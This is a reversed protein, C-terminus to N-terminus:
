LLAQPRARRLIERGAWQVFTTSFIQTGSGETYLRLMFNQLVEGQGNQQGLQKPHMQALLTRLQEPGAIGHNRAVNMAEIVNKRLPESGAYTVCQIGQSELRSVHAQPEPSDGDVYWHQYSGRHRQVEDGIVTIAQGVGRSLDVRSFYTGLPRLKEFLPQQGRDSGAGVFVICLRSASADKERRLTELIEGYKRGASQFADMSDTLWLDATLREIFIEPHQAWPMKMVSESVQLSAFPALVSHVDRRKATELWNLQSALDDHEAPFQWDYQSIQKLLLACLILPLERLTSIYNIAFRKAQPPYAEFDSIDLKHSM